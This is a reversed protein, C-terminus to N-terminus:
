IMGARRRWTRVARTAHAEQAPHARQRGPRRPRGRRSRPPKGGRSGPPAGTAQPSAEVRKSEGADIEFSKRGVTRLAATSATPLRLRIRVVGLCDDTEEDCNVRVRVYGRRSMRLRQSAIAALPPTEDLEELPDDLSPAFPPDQTPTPDTGGGDPPPSAEQANFTATASRAQSMAVQCTGTGSCAGSWGAFTSGAAATATLTVSTGENYSQSCDSGCNIGAPNSTVTGTGTGSKFVSLTHTPSPPAATFTATVDQAQSMTVQCTGTGSCADSWGTFTSGGGPDATLTVPTGENYNQTCDAGCNIGAPSSTVTGTGNGSKFVNLIHTPPPPTPDTFTATVSHQQNMTLQCNGTGSCDGSWGTFTSGTAPDATLTVPTGDNYNQTCDAGCNIGAPSSIVTGAGSGATTVDLQFQSPTGLIWNRIGPAAVRSYVGPKKPLACGIGWSTVGVLRWQSPDNESSPPPTQTSAALPGGSDGQCTDVGGADFGACVMTAPDFESGYYDGQGCTSDAVRPVYAERLQNSLAAM